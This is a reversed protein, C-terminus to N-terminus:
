PVKISLFSADAVSFAIGALMFLPVYSDLMDRSVGAGYALRWAIPLLFGVLCLLGWLEPLQRGSIPTWNTVVM